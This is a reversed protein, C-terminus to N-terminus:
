ANACVRSRECGPRSDIGGRSLRIYERIVPMFLVVVDGLTMTGFQQGEGHFGASSQRRVCHREDPRQCLLPILLETKPALVRDTRMNVRRYRYGDLGRVSEHIHSHM